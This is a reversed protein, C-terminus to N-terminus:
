RMVVDGGDLFVVPVRDLVKPEPVLPNVRFQPLPGLRESQIVGSDRDERFRHQQQNEHHEL